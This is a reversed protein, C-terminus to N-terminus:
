LSEGVAIKEQLNELFKNFSNNLSADLIKGDFSVLYGGIIEEDINVVIEPNIKYKKILIDKVNNIQNESPESAFYIKAETINKKELIKKHLAQAIKSFIKINDSKILSITMNRLIQADEYPWKEALLMIIKIKDDKKVNFSFIFNKFKINKDLLIEFSKMSELFGEWSKEPLKDTLIKAFKDVLYSM